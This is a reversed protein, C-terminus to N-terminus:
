FVEKPDALPYGRANEKERKERHGADGMYDNVIIVIGCFVVKGDGNNTCVQLVGVPLGCVNQNIEQSKKYLESM